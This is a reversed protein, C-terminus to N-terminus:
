RNNNTSNLVKAGLSHIEPFPHRSITTTTTQHPCPPPRCNLLPFAGSTPRHVVEAPFWRHCTMIVWVPDRHQWTTLRLVCLLLLCSNNGPCVRCKWVCVCWFNNRKKKRGGWRRIAAAMNKTRTQKETSLAPLQQTTGTTAASAIISAGRLTLVLIHAIYSGSSSSPHVIAARETTNKSFPSPKRTKKQSKQLVFHQSPSFFRIAAGGNEWSKQIKKELYWAPNKYIASM